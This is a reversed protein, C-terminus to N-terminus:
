FSGNNHPLNAPVPAILGWHEVLKGGEVRWLDNIILKPEAGGESRTYVLDGDAIVHHLTGYPVREGTSTRPAAISSDQRARDTSATGVFQEGDDQRAILVRKVWESVLARNDDTPGDAPATQGDVPATDDPTVGGIPGLADWHEVIRDGDVRWVDFGVVPAPGFGSYLGHTVVLDGDGLIRLLRYSFNAPLRELLGRLGEVGDVGLASHQTYVPGFYDEIARPDRHGFLRDVAAEVLPKANM